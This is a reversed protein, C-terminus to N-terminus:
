MWYDKQEEPMIGRDILTKVQAETVRGRIGQDFDIYWAIGGNFDAFVKIWGLKELERESKKLVREALASHHTYDCGYFKGDRDIWGYKSNPQLLYSYDLDDWGNAECIVDDERPIYSHYGGCRNKLYKGNESIKWWGNDVILGNSYRSYEHLFKPM